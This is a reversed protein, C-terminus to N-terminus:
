GYTWFEVLVVRQRLDSLSLAQSNIWPGVTIEPARQGIDLVRQAGAGPPGVVLTGAASLALLVLAKVTRLAM